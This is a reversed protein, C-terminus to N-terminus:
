HWFGRLRRPYIMTCLARGRKGRYEANYMAQVDWKSASIGRGDTLHLASGFRAESPYKPLAGRSMPYQWVVDNTGVKSERAVGSENIEILHFEPDARRNRPQVHHFSVCWSGDEGMARGHFWRLADQAPLNTGYHHDHYGVGAFATAAGDVQVQGEVDCRAGAVIWRHEAGAFSRQMFEREVSEAAARPRFHLRASIARGVRDTGRLSLQSGDFGSQGIRVGRGNVSADLEDPMPRVMCDHEVIGGRVVTLRTELFDGPRPPPVRTPHRRYRLYRRVYEPDFPLGISMRATIIRGDALSQAQFYWWEYGGPATVHHWEDPHADRSYLPITPM